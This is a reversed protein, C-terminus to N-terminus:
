RDAFRRRWGRLSRRRHEQGVVKAVGPRLCPRERRSCCALCRHWQRASPWRCPRRGQHNHGYDPADTTEVAVGVIYSRDRAVDGCFHLVLVVRRGAFGLGVGRTRDLYRDRGVALIGLDVPGGHRRHHRRCVAGLPGGRSPASSAAKCSDGRADIVRRLLLLHLFHPPLPHGSCVPGCHQFGRRGRLRDECCFRGAFVDPDRRRVGDFDPRFRCHEGAAVVCFDNQRERAPPRYPLLAARRM